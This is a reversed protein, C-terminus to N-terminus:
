TNATVLVDLGMARACSYNIRVLLM